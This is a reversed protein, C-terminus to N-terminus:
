RKLCGACGDFHNSRRIRRTMFLIVGTAINTRGAVKVWIVQAAPVVQVRPDSLTACRLGPYRCFTLASSSSTFTQLLRGDVSESRSLTLRIVTGSDIPDTVFQTASARSVMLMLAVPVVSLGSFKM